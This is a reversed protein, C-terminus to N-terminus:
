ALATPNLVLDLSRLVDQFAEDALVPVAGETPLEKELEVWSRCGAYYPTNPLEFVQAARYVRVPLVFLGPERYAFRMRAIEESWLHRHALM